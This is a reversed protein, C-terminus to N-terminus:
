KQLTIKKPLIYTIPTLIEWHKGAQKNDVWRKSAHQFLWYNLCQRLNLSSPRKAGYRKIILISNYRNYKRLINSRFEIEVYKIWFYYSHTIISAIFSVSQVNNRLHKYFLCLFSDFTPFSLFPLIIIIKNYERNHQLITM